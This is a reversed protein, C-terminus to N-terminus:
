RKSMPIGNEAFVGSLWEPLSQQGSRIAPLKDLVVFVRSLEQGFGLTQGLGAADLYFMVPASAPLTSIVLDGPGLETKLADAIRRADINLGTEPLSHVVGSELVAAGGVILVTLTALSLAIESYQQSIRDFAIEIGEAAAGFYLPLLFLWLRPPPTVRQAVAAAVCIGAALVFVAGSSNRRRSLLSVAVGAHLAVILWIPWGAHWLKWCEGFSGIMRPFLGHLEGPQIYKNEFISAFGSGLITPWYFLATIFVSAALAAILDRYEFRSVGTRKLRDVIVVLICIALGYVATPTTYMSLVTLAVFIAWQGERGPNSALAPALCMLGLFLLAVLTYGRANTSFMIMDASIAVLSAAVLAASPRLRKASYWYTVPIVLVGAAFAPLRIVAASHGFLRVAAWVLLTHLWHNNPVYDVAIAYLLPKNAYRLYTYAEDYRMTQNLYVARICVGALIVLCLLILHAGSQAAAWKRFSPLLDVLHRIWQSCIQSLIRELRYRGAWLAIGASIWIVGGVRLSLVLSSYFFDNVRNAHGGASLETFADKLDTFSLTSCALAGAGVLFALLAVAAVLALWVRNEVETTVDSEPEASPANQPM